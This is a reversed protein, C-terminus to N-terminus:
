TLMLVWDAHISEMSSFTTQIVARVRSVPVDAAAAVSERILGQSEYAAPVSAGDLTM